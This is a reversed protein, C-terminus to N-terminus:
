FIESMDSNEFPNKRKEVKKQIVWGLGPQVTTKNVLIVRNHGAIIECDHETGNDDIKVDVKIQGSPIDMTDIMPWTHNKEGMWVGKESFVCFSTVWGSIYVSGSGRNHNSCIKEWFEIDPKGSASNVFEALIPRLMTLWAKMYGAKCEYKLLSEARKQVNQWDQVEGLLTVKPLGCMLQFKYSFFKAASAMLVMSGIIKDHDTTTSFNPIIWDKLDKDHINKGIEEAMDKVLKPYNATYLTAVQRTVLEKKGEHSVFLSRLEEAYAQLYFAFQVGIALWVDDPRLILHQHQNYALCLTTIFGHEEVNFIPESSAIRIKALEEEQEGDRFLKVKGVKLDPTVEFTTPM